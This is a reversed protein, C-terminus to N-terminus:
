EEMANLMFLIFDSQADEDLGNFFEMFEEISEFGLDGLPEPPGGTFNETGCGSDTLVIDLDTSDTDNNIVHKGKMGAVQPDRDGFDILGTDTFSGGNVAVDARTVVAPALIASFIFALGLSNRM